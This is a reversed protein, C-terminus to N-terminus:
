SGSLRQRYVLLVVMLNIGMGIGTLLGRVGDLWDKSFPGAPQLFDPLILSAGILVMGLPLWKIAKPNKLQVQCMTKIERKRRGAM